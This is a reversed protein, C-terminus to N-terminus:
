DEVKVSVNFNKKGLVPINQLIMLRDNKIRRIKSYKNHAEKKSSLCYTRM